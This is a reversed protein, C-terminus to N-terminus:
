EAAGLAALQRLPVSAARPAVWRFTFRTFRGLESDVHVRGGLSVCADRLASLGVGRGSIDTVVDRTSLGGRFLHDILEERSADPFGRDAARARVKQWDIGRGDDQIQLLVENGTQVTRLLVQGKRPKGLKEREDGSELGHDVANRVAHSFAAWFAGFREADLRVRNHEVVVDVEGKGLRLALAEIQGGIRALRRSMPELTWSVAHARVVDLAAGSDIAELLERHEAAAIEIVDDTRDGLVVGIKSTLLEFRKRLAARDDAIPDRAHIREELTHCIAVLSHAGFLAANGKLTHAARLMAAPQSSPACLVDVLERAESVFQMCGFRDRVLHGFLTAMEHEDAQAREREMRETIDSIVILMRDFHDGERGIPRYEIDFSKGNFDFRSPMQAIALELPLVGATIEAWGLACYEYLDPSAAAIYDWLVTTSGVPGLWSELIASREAGMRAERDVTVFGQQMTDLVLRMDANRANLERTREEVMQELRETEKHASDHIHEILARLRQVMANFATTLVGIEDSSTSPVPDVDLDGDSVRTAAAALARLRRAFSRAIWFAALVGFLLVGAGIALATQRVQKSSAQLASTSLEIALTGTTGEHSRVPAVAVVAGERMLVHERTAGGRTAESAANPHGYAYLLEGDRAYLAISSVSADNTVAEFAERAAEKDKFEVASRVQRAVINAYSGARQKLGNELGTVHQHPFYTAAAGVVTVLPIFLLALVKHQITFVWTTRSAM